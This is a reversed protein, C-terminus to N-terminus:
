CIYLITYHFQSYSVLMQFVGVTGTADGREVVMIVSCCGWGMLPVSHLASFLFYMNQLGERGFGGLLSFSLFDHV